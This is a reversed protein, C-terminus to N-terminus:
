QPLPSVFHFIGFVLSGFLVLVIISIGLSYFWGGDTLKKIGMWILLLSWFAFIGDMGSLLIYPLPKLQYPSPNTTFFYLGFTMLELPFILIVSIVLPVQTYAIVAFANRFTVSRGSASVTIKILLAVVLVSLIGVFPAVAFGAVLFNILSSAADGAKMLWFSFFTLAVGSIVSLIISYNKHKAVAITYFANLPHELVKWGTSFLDLNEIKTQLYSGCSACKVALHHNHNQCVPCTIM